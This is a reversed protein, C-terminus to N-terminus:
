RTFKASCGPEEFVRVAELTIGAPLEPELREYIYKAIAEASSSNERFYDISELPAKELDATVGNIATKLRGFDMVLGMRNLKNSCVDAIVLWDHSHLPEKSGDTLTLQHSAKFHTEVSITFM